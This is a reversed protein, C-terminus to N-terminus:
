NHRRDNIFSVYKKFNLYEKKKYVLLYFSYKSDGDNIMKGIFDGHGIRDGKSPNICSFPGYSIIKSGSRVICYFEDGLNLIRRITGDAIAYASDCELHNFVYVGHDDSCFCCNTSRKMIHGAKIPIQSTLVISDKEQANTHIAIIILLTTLASLEKSKNFLFQTQLM